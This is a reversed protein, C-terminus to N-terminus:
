KFILYSYDDVVTDMIKVLTEPVSAPAESTIVSVNGLFRVQYKKAAADLIVFGENESDEFDAVDKFLTWKEKYPASDYPCFVLCNGCENCMYDVHVIQRMAIGPVKIEINARNPCVDVCNECIHGCSLCRGGEKSPCGAEKLIGKRAEIEEATAPIPESVPLAAGLIAEAAQKANAEAKVIISPGYLADGVVYVDAVSTMLNADVMPRGKADVNIGNATYWDSDLREGVALIVTDAEVEVTEGTAVVSPRGSADVAGFAQVDCVLKGDAYCKPALLESFTVGDEVAMKLEEEDAPMYRKTRRYVLSVKETGANKLAARAVDMATNGGGIVAVTKGLEVNGDTANYATLFEIAGMPDCGEIAARGPKTAGIAVIVADYGMAKVDAVSVEKGFQIDVGLAKLLEADKGIEDQNIRFNPIAYDVIGGLRERKEFLSVCAGGKALYYSAAMGAPGGGIVAVKKGSKAVPAVGKIVEDFAKGAALFKTDRIHVSDEYFTRTCATQCPHACIKGTTFPLANTELIVKLAGAYDGKGALNMYTSIDQHIPCRDQCPATFCSLLPVKEESKRNEPLKASKTHHPDVKIKEALACLADVDIGKWEPVGMERLEESMQEFRQYGGPKLITTAVTVPWIGCGVIDKINFADAGGSMALRLKGGFDKEIKAALTLTLGALPRGSMYMETSPLEGRTVAVPFTNTLKLGFAVGLDDAVKQLRQFMPVADAYQLDAKLNMSEDGEFHERGFVMYDYGMDDMTKRAVEYGLLTPNCKIFVNLHKANYLHMAISEIQEPPCGHLTSITASNVIDSRISLVDEKTLNEFKDINDLLYQIAEKFEPTDKAEMMNDIFTNVKEGQIMSLDYGVSINFQFGDMSGLGFEKSIANLAVWANIYEKQAEPVYLETSWECNYCEDKAVICPKPVCAALDRGDMQQVTKLEFFRAGAFYSAVINQSLQSNPGAAPGIVTELKRGFINNSSAEDAVYPRRVGFVHGKKHEELTWEMLQPFSMCRMIDGM